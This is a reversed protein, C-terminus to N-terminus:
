ILSRRIPSFTSPLFRYFQNASTDWFGMFFGVLLFGSPTIGGSLVMLNQAAVVVSFERYPCFQQRIKEQV